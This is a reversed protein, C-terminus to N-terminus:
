SPQILTAEISTIYRNLKGCPLIELWCHALLKSFGMKKSQSPRLDFSSEGPIRVVIVLCSRGLNKSHLQDRCPLLEITLHTWTRGTM